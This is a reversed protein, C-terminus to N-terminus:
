GNTGSGRSRVSREPGVDLEVTPDNAVDGHRM